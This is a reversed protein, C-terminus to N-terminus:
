AQVCLCLSSQRLHNGANSAYVGRTIRGGGEPGAVPEEREGKIENVEDVSWTLAEASARIGRMLLYFLPIDM